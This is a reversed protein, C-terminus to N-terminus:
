LCPRTNEAFWAEREEYKCQLTVETNGIPKHRNPMYQCGNWFCGLYESVERTEASYGDVDVIEVGLLHVDRGNGAHTINNRTRVIYAVWQLAEVSKRDGM